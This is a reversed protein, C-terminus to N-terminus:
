GGSDKMTEIESPPRVSHLYSDRYITGRLFRPRPSSQNPSNNQPGSKVLRQFIGPTPTSVNDSHSLMDSLCSHGPTLLSSHGSLRLQSPTLTSLNDSTQLHCTTTISSNSSTQLQRSIMTPM